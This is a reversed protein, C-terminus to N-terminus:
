VRLTELSVERSAPVLSRRSGQQWGPSYGYRELVRNDPAMPSLTPAPGGRRDEVDLAALCWPCVETPSIAALLNPRLGPFPVTISACADVGLCPIGRRHFYFTQIIFVTHSSNWSSLNGRMYDADEGEMVILIPLAEAFFIVLEHVRNERVPIPEIPAESTAIFIKSCLVTLVVCLLFLTYRTGYLAYTPIITFIDNRVLLIRRETLRPDGIGHCLYRRCAALSLWFLRVDRASTPSGADHVHTRIMSAHLLLHSLDWGVMAEKKLDQALAVYNQHQLTPDAAIDRYLQNVSGGRRVILAMQELALVIAKPDDRHYIWIAMM